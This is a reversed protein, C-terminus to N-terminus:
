QNTLSIAETPDFPRKVNKKLTFIVNKRNIEGHSALKTIIDRLETGSLPRAEEMDVIEEPSKGSSFLIGVANEIAFKAWGQNRCLGALRVIDSYNVNKGSKRSLEPIVQLLLRAAMRSDGTAEKLNHFQDLMEKEIITSADQVSIQNESSFEAVFKGEGRPIRERLEILYGSDLVIVPLDTEPYMREGGPLPRLFYTEGNERPGRTESLDLEKLKRIRETIIRGIEDNKGPRGTIIFFADEEGCGLLGAIEGADKMDMGYGPFEDSHMMGGNGYAKIVDAIERGIRFDGKKLLGALGPLKGSVVRNGKRISDVIMRSKKLLELETIDQVSIEPYIGPIRDALTEMARAVGKQRSVEYAIVDRIQSIKSVGKIEVRGYGMSMNVDQRIADPGKRLMMTEKVLFGIKRAIEVAHDANRIDPETAVELLPIGLRDLSYTVTGSDDSIKRASDEEICVSTIGVDGNASEVKGNGSVLTTRQFGSTNSGDLVIKRMVQIADRIEAQMGMSVLVATELAKRNLNGPPEEDLEVLCSNDTVEYMFSRNREGEYIAARDSRGMEGTVVRLRRWVTSKKVTGNDTLCRCFLKEGKMQMHIELGIKLPAEPKM